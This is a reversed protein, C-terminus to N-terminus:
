INNPSTSWIINTLHECHTYLQKEVHNIFEDRTLLSIHSNGSPLQADYIGYTSIADLVDLKNIIIDTVGNIQAAQITEQLSLWRVRRKRGTTAGFENGIKQIEQLTPDISEEASEYIPKFGSYTEYAKMVGYIKKIKQPPIGNLCVAGITCHSSTVYPYDGWDIDLQFGQAGECLIKIPTSSWHFIRHIDVLQYPLSEDNYKVVDIVRKGVRSYKDRYTPGIGQRTTGIKNDNSDELIHQETTVHARKDVYVNGTFGMARLMKIEEALKPLNVVCGPGIISAKNYFIGAPVQHTVVKTGNHYITHGANGGGNYRLVIDYNKALAHSVKGKGTDGAQLDIVVDAYSIM